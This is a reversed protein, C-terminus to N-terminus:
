SASWMRDLLTIEGHGRHLDAEGECLAKVIAKGSRARAIRAFTRDAVEWLQHDPNTRRLEDLKAAM